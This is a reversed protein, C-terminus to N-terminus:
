KGREWFREDVQALCAKIREGLETFQPLHSAEGLKRAANMCRVLYTFLSGEEHELGERTVFDLFGLREDDMIAWIRKQKKGGHIEPHPVLACFRALAEEMRSPVYPHDRDWEAEADEWAAQPNAERLERLRTRCWTRKVEDGKRDLIRAIADHDVLLEILGRYDEYDLLENRLLHYVFLGDMGQLEKIMQGSVQRGTDDLVGIARLNDVLMALTKHLERRTKDDTLLHDIVTVINLRMSPPLSAEIEDVPVLPPADAPVPQGPLRHTTLDPLGIALVQEATIKTKSRLEAPEGKVLDAHSEPTWILEGTRQADNKARGYVTKRIKVEDIAGRKGAAKLEKRLDVTVAEPALSSRWARTTSSRGARRPRGDPPVRGATVLRAEKKIFKRLAPFVV